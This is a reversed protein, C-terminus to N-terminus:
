EASAGNRTIGVGGEGGIYDGFQVNCHQLSDRWDAKPDFFRIWDPEVFLSGEHNLGRGSKSTVRLAEIAGDGKRLDNRCEGIRQVQSFARHM